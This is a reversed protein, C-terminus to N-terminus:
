PLLPVQPLMDMSPVVEHDAPVAVSCKLHVTLVMLFAHPLSTVRQVSVCLYVMAPFEYYNPSMMQHARIKKTSKRM